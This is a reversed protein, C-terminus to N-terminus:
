KTIMEFGTPNFLSIDCQTHGEMTLVALIEGFLFGSEKKMLPTRSHRPMASLLMREPYGPHVIGSFAAPSLALYVM